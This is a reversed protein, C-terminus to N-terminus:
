FVLKNIENTPQISSGLLTVEVTLHFERLDPIMIRDSNIEVEETLLMWINEELSSFSPGKPCDMLSDFRWKKLLLILTLSDSARFCLSISVVESKPRDFLSLHVADSISKMLATYQELESYGDFLSYAYRDIRTLSFNGRVNDSSLFQKSFFM